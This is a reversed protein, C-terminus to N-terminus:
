MLMIVNGMKKFSVKFRAIFGEKNTNGNVEKIVTSLNKGTRKLVENSAIIRKNAM